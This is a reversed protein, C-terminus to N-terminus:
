ITTLAQVSTGGDDELPSIEALRIPEERDERTFLSLYCQEGFADPPRGTALGSMELRESMNVEKDRAALRKVHDSLGLGKLRV